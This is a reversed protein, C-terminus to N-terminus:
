ARLEQGAKIAVAHAEWWQDQQQAQVYHKARVGYCGPPLEITGGAYRLTRPGGPNNPGWSQLEVFGDEGDECVFVGIVAQCHAGSSAPRAIGDPGRNGFLVSWCRAVGYKSALADAIETNNRLRKVRCTHQKCADLLEQPMRDRPGSMAVAWPENDRTLDASGYQGRPCLGGVGDPAALWEAAWSGVSGEQSESGLRGKGIVVRSGPYIPEWAIELPKGVQLGDTLVSYYSHQAAQHYGRAVCTGNRQFHPVLPRIEQYDPWLFVGTVGRSKLYEWRGNYQAMSESFFVSEGTAKAIHDDTELTYEERIICGLPGFQLDEM